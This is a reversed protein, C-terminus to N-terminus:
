VSWASSIILRTCRPGAPYMAEVTIPEEPESILHCTSDNTAEHLREVLLWDELILRADRPNSRDILRNADSQSMKKVYVSFVARLKPLPISPPPTTTVEPSFPPCISAAGTQLCTTARQSAIQRISVRSSAVLDTFNVYRHGAQRRKEIKASLKGPSASKSLRSMAPNEACTPFKSHLSRNSGRVPERLESGTSATVATSSTSFIWM